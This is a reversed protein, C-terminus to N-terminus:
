KVNACKKEMIVANVFEPEKIEFLLYDGSRQMDYNLEKGSIGLIKIQSLEYDMKVSVTTTGETTFGQLEKIFFAVHGRINKYINGKWGKELKLPEKKFVWRKGILLELFPKYKLYLDRIEETNLDIRASPMAGYLLSLQFMQEYETIDKMHWPYYFVNLPKAICLYSFHEMLAPLSEAMLCDMGKGVEVNYPGNAFVFKNKEKLYPLLEESFQEYAFSLRYAPKGNIMSVGDDHAYDFSGFCLNDWFIGASDDEFEKLLAKLQRRMDKGFSTKKDTNCLPLPGCMNERGANDTVVADSFKEKVLRPDCVGVLQCYMLSKIGFEKLDKLHQHIEKLSIPVPQVDRNPFCDMMWEKSNDEPLHMGYCPMYHHIESFNIGLGKNTTELTKKIYDRDTHIPTEWDTQTMNVYMQNISPNNPEFYDTYNEYIKGLGCRWDGQHFFLNFEAKAKNEVSLKFCSLEADIYREERNIVFQVKPTKVDFANLLTLGLDENSNYLTIGPILSAGDPGGYDVFYVAPLDFLGCPYGKTATWIKWNLNWPYLNEPLPMRIIYKIARATGKLNESSLKINVRDNEFDLKLASEFDGCNQVDSNSSLPYTQNQQEDKVFFSIAEDSYPVFDGGGIPKKQKFDALASQAPDLSKIKIRSLNDKAHLRYYEKEILM